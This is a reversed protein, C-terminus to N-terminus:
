SRKDTELEKEGLSCLPPFSRTQETVPVCLPGSGTHLVASVWKPTGPFLPPPIGAQSQSFPLQGADRAGEQVWAVSVKLGRTACLVQGRATNRWMSCPFRGSARNKSWAEQIGQTRLHVSPHSERSQSQLIRVRYSKGGFSNPTHTNLVNRIIIVSKISIIVSNM